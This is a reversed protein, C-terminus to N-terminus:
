DAKRENDITEQITNEKELKDFGASLARLTRYFVVLDEEPIDRSVADQVDNAVAAIIDALREGKETLVLRWGYRRRQGSERTCVVGDQLLAELERSVLSRDSKGAAALQSASLGEPHSRLLYLWFVHVAKLGLQPIYRAKLKQISGHVSSILVAFEEFREKEM